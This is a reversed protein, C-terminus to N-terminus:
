LLVGHGLRRGLSGCGALGHRGLLVHALAGALLAACQHGAFRHRGRRGAM